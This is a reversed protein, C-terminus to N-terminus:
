GKAQAIGLLFTIITPKDTGPQPVRDGFHTYGMAAYPTEQGLHYDNWVIMTRSRMAPSIAAAITRGANLNNGVIIADWDGHDAFTAATLSRTNPHYANAGDVAPTVDLEIDQEALFSLQPPTLFLRPDFVLVRLRM